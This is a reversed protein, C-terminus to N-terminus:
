LYAKKFAEKSQQIYDRTKVAHMEWSKRDDPNSFPNQDSAISHSFKDYYTIMASTILNFREKYEQLADMNDTAIVIFQVLQANSTSNTQLAAAQKAFGEGIDKLAAARIQDDKSMVRNFNEAVKDQGGYVLYDKLHKSLDKRYKDVDAQIALLDKDLM